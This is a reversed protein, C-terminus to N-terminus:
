GEWTTKFYLPLVHFPSLRSPAPFTRVEPMPLYVIDIWVAEVDDLIGSFVFPTSDLMEDLM